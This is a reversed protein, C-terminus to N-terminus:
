TGARILECLRPHKKAQMMFLGTPGPGLLVQGQGYGHGGRPLAASEPFCAGVPAAYFDKAQFQGLQNMQDVLVIRELNPNESVRLM